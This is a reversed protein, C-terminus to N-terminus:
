GILSKVRLMWPNCQLPNCCTWRISLMQSTLVVHPCPTLTKKSPKQHAGLSSSAPEPVVDVLATVDPGPEVEDDQVVILPTVLQLVLLSPAGARGVWCGRSECIIIAVRDKCRATQWLNATCVRRQQSVVSNDSDSGKQMHQLSHLGTILQKCM